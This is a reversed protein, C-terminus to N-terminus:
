PALTKTLERVNYRMMDIYNAGGEGPASLADSYLVGGIKAGTEAAIRRALRPDSINELFVAGVKHQKVAEIIRAIDRASPEAETSVGQPAIFEVGYRASFYGFADHTSVVRRRDKPVGELAKVIEADLADLKATYASANARYADAGAPDAAILADRIEAVYIRANAVDQWAHPDTGEEGPRSAVGKGLTVIAGKGKAAAVLRELWGEFGLGNVFIVKAQAIHRVDAPTPQYVHADGDPGVLTTVDVRDGGVERVFDGIISFSAVVPLKGTQATAPAALAALLTTLFLRRTPM